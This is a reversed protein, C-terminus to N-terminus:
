ICLLDTEYDVARWDKPPDSRDCWRLFEVLRRAMAARSAKTQSIAKGDKKWASQGLRPIWEGLFRERLYQNVEPLYSGDDGIVFPCHSLKAHALDIMRQPSPFPNERKM